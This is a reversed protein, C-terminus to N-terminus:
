EERAALPTSPAPPAVPTPGQNPAVGFNLEGFKGRTLRVSRPNDTTVDWDLPLTRTDVKLVFNSGIEADPVAACTIHYRGFADTTIMQGNVTVLRVSPVGPEGEDQYGNRNKDEFVKGILESCDFVASPVISIVATGRNSVTSSDAGNKALGTNVREGSTAGAGVVLVLRYRVSSNAPITQNAWTLEREGVSPAIAAGEITASGAVYRMGPPLVDVITLGARRVNETNRVTIEYPVLDGASATRRPTTKVVVLQARTLFPDLAIHNFVIDPDGSALRFTFYYPVEGSTAPTPLPSIRVPGTLGTPDFPGIQPLIVTSPASYGAPPTVVLRYVTESKPCQPSAGPVIDFRYEGSPGTRQTRQSPDLLCNVSLPVGSADVMTVIAGSVPARTVSDFIVGAPDIPENQDVISIEAATVSVNTISGYVVNNEPNIFRIEYGASQKVGVFQYNGNSDTIATAIVVGNSILKVIWNVRKPENSQYHGDANTDTYVTGAITGVSEAVTLTVSQMQCNAPASKDCLLYQMTYTGPQVAASTAVVGTAPDLTIGAPWTGSIAVTANGSTGLTAQVGNVMDNAAINAIPTSATGSVATGTDELPAINGTVTITVSQTQCNAPTSKDCLQYQMTYVGPQVEARTTVAGSAPDLTIGTPWVGAQSVTANGAANLTALTGNVRDNVVINALPTSPTGSVATGLDAVPAINGSVTITVSQTQCNAPTSKDCLQYQMMYVGPQVTGSISVAGTVPDLTIETLWTGTRAVTANGNAGLTAPTGNVVDNAVINTIPTAPAGASAMGTDPAPAINGSVNITVIQAQCNAPSSKDCLQYSVVYTGPQVSASTLVAGTAPDLTIGNPWRGTITVTANGTTGLTAPSGNVMDNAAINAVPTSPTGSVAKGIDAMPAIDGTVTITVQQTQCNAPASKDCLQYSVAYTGPQVAASTSVAGTLPDLTIGTPWTGSQAVTANGSAGLTAPTGNVTDNAALNVGPAAPTGAVSAGADAVPAIDGTVSITVDQTQCNAPTSKDCLLYSVVYTGPQVAASTSVRGSSPDLTIGNPWTGSQTVTANGTTGLTAPTGNVMDNAAINAVPTAPTGSIATGLDALPVIDGTVTITVNQAQCNAPTSMDCLQYQMAYTGPQVAASTSVAGTGPDLTVGAPWNGTTAVTANGATGLAAPAGNVMDNAAINAVPTAPTGSTAVGADAVPAINGSVSISVTQTECNAPTSKDCLQYAVVYTGPQVTATTLVAGTTADLTIGTPWTGSTAVTANGNVGLAAPAGNVLDNAAINVVPTSPTGSIATGTDAAPAIDGSVTITVSQTQCNAPTSKDCLQYQIAYVGPQVSATTSVSGTIPDLAIGAPWAGSTALTSNGDAGLTAPVGNVMDNAAINAVPTTPTGSIATGADSIPEINSTVIITVDQTQCNAPSSKDCLQYTVVYTGPQVIAATSVAGTMPDLTIGAPWTGIKTVTANGTTGLTAPAGNVSDNAAINAVPTSPAGSVAIGADPIPVINGTVTITVTQTQCNAPTSKDCLQYTAVYAGPQVTASTSIAGSVPDLSIGVPWTGFQAVSANGTAGLTAQRGNVTDNAAINAVPTSTAGSVAEGADSIPAINGAVTITVTQTQCNAPASKDCLQYQVTYVGPQVSASTSVAGTMPDLTIGTPWTGTTAVTANGSVGLTAPTGNVSDNITVNEVPTAQTGSVAVGTDTVAVVDGKVTITVTQSQCNAPTSRDCLQYSVVYTGPQLAASTTVAGTTPNLTIGAPWAGSTAVAANGASGLTAPAGNVMDNAAINAVSISPTGSIAEGVDATPAIDGAVSITVSQTACNAPTSRDCLQYGVAYTGPQVVASTMVAGTAPDLTIGAPWTGNTAIIANGASGLTAPAGNVSDNAAINAVPTAPTGSTAQGTDSLPAINGTVTITVSQTQCNAPTSKDCLQYTVVYKGPQVGADTSVAGSILDLTIGAPWTGSTAITAIGTDGLTAPAGNVMDNAALNAIPTTPTGSVAAGADSVPAINSAVTITVDQTQCNAPTSKDCLQYSVVYTGPQVAASTMVSATMPDLAIGAPWTGSQAVTANGSAGLTAPAGNVMDNIAINAVATAPTGSVATGADSTPAINSTVTITVNQTQCNAPTNLDCLQYQMAYDGPQVSATTSVAGTAPDLTIGTPWTGSQVITANGAPGLTAPAGNVMDNIAINAVATAPTGSTAQGADSIPAIDGTVTITVDQTQCNVPTSKDCLQYTVVYAGPQVAASTSVAGTAPDLTIGAPWTGSTAVTANGAAGLTAATGNVMDNAVINAVATAPTGSVATGTDATPVINGSVTITVTQTQCNAPASKDCLQYTVVYAGPQVAASTSVAGTAPDLTIGAPWAGSQAVTANGAVGLTASTGNVTDNAAINTVSTAPTGAVSAGADSMPAINATVTITVNQTQCNAPTSKDCLLYTVVYTGPQVAASTSVGDTAPNLAIGTPWAGTQAVTANPSAGTVEAPSGNVMDNSAINALPTTPTGSVATGSETSPLIAADVVVTATSNACNAPANRDCLQYPLVYTGPAVLNSISVAGTTPALEFGSPWVGVVSVSATLSSGAVVAPTGNVVDNVAINGIPTSVTGSVASGSDVSPDISASVVILATTTQCNAPTSKDCLQYALTLTGPQVRAGVTIAGTAPNLTVGTPWIGSTAITSNGSTGLTAPTGNVFDNAAINAIPTTVFGAVMTGNDAEPAINATVTVRDIITACNVPSNRDCLQYTLNYTGPQVSASTSVAGSLPDLTIGTPWTGSAAVTANGSDGLTAAIGNVRDGTAINAIAISPTGSIATGSETVPVIEPTVNITVISTACNVPSNRDCLEYTLTYTGPPTGPAVIVEGQTPELTIGVPWIGSQGLTANGATGLTAPVGNVVDNLAINPIATGGAASVTVVDPTPRIAAFITIIANQNACNAPSSTDCLTYPLTYTGPIDSADISIAGTAPDLTIGTPWTGNIAVTANGTAGLTAPAGNVNDNAAINAIAIMPSGAVASGTDLVPKIDGTVTITDTMTACNAPSNKDCLEYAVSYTGPQVLASTTVGGTAANLTIGAPWTGSTAVTANGSAGLTAPFGNVSDNAAINAFVTSPTGSISAGTETAPVINASVIVSVTANNCNAPTNLDCLRYTVVYTGPQVTTTVLVAGTAPNLSVGANTTSIQSLSANGGAGLTVSAGNVSDNSAVNAIATTVAGSVSTGNDIAPLINAAVSITINALACFPPSSMDCLQYQVVYTGPQVTGSTSVSGTLPDLTIGVPWSGSQALTANGTGGLTAPNGNVVDNIALNAVPTSPTGSIAAGNDNTPYIAGVVTVVATEVRCNAPTSKDCLQYQVPYTGPEVAAITTIAGTTPDLNIGTPWSGSQALIANGSVGLTAAFGNVADNDAINAIATSATGAFVSGADSTPLINSAVSITVTQNQCNAPTNKDCLQYSLVYTGPPVTASTTVAGTAPDLEIGVPWSGVSSVIANGAAGLTAAFGNVNDNAAVNNVPTSPAGSIASGSDTVPYIAATVTITSNSAACNVPTNRDCLQTAVVYVGPQVLASISINGTLPNLTIGAPWLGLEFVTANYSAGALTAGSGNVSDNSVLNSIVISATGSVGSGSDPAPSITANLTITATSIACNAPTNMDCLQYQLAYTGPPVSPTTTIAGTTPNLSIGAPWAGFKSVLANPSGGGILAPSGNVMDNSAINAIPTQLSGAPAVSSEPMPLIEATVTITDSVTACNAPTNKDCLQYSIPYSGPRVSSSVNIAGTAPDLAIGLAWTSSVAITANGSAGLTAAFGNVSDNAAINAIPTSATGSIATGSEATPVISSAVNITVTVLQCNVPTNLDCLQYAVSYSGPQLAASTTIAGTTPDLSVGAPWIGSQAIISNAATAPAGNVNDNARVNAIPTTAVGATAAGSDTTPAINASVVVTATSDACNPTAVKDCLKYALIYTGPQVAATSTVAGTAPNLAFGAPWTGVIAVSANGGVGLTAAPGNVFDNAAINNIPTAATGSTAIGSDPAPAIAGNVTITISQTQCNAPTNKDCLQYTLNYVGPAVAASTSVGGTAPNLTIGTPWTGSQSVTANGGAGLTAPSGNVIDNAAVNAVPVSVIGATSTGSDIAPAINSSVTITDSVSQCNAPANKDCLQYAVAYAGPAVSATTTIAGTATNLAIGTPWTGFQIITANGGAGLTVSASNVTDNATVNAIPTSATGSVASGNETVPLISAAITITATQTQCNAPTSKDCLQYQLAYTGPAVSATTSVAGTTPNLTVGIPWTGSTAITANGGVGLAAPAGNVNDNAAVNAIPTTAIGATANGSDIVPAINASVAVTDIVTACNPTAAKDCLQYTLNYTGPQVGATTTIAGTAPNLAIGVPWTGSQAITANGGAGLTAAAGNVTDNAAVNAIPTAATGSVANGSEPSPAINGNVTITLNQTQCNVPTNKDCLQYQLAYTGPAVGAGVTVAGSTANLAIGVPWTGVVGITANGAAGLTAASGNVSDNGAVNAVASSATGATAVGSDPNSVISASVTITDVITQCNVPTNLDCLQYAVNYSGPAVVASTSIAGSTTNLTIGAPWTGSQAITSNASSAAVGNVNDNSRVNTIPSSPTGSVATGSEAVPSIAATITISIAQLRCNAPTNRDCLQYQPTYIGPLAAASTSIAGTATNLTIGVPWTGSQAVVANASGGVINAPSGNVSDNAVVNAIVTSATGAVASGSETTTLINATVTVSDSIIACNAPTNKDCLQYAIAYTGPQVATSITVAGTASVLAIGTPWTGSQAVTANAGGGVVNAPSGNVTDNAAVNAIVTSATGSVGTGSETVPVINGGVTITVTATNCNVPTNKDCLQYVLSYTGPATATSATVAGTTTNLTLGTPWTGSQAITANGAAGLTAASGNVTDNAAVNVVPTSATGAVASGTDITAGINASVTITDSITACNPTAAKDCLQYAVSYTGPAVAASTTIAGTATNLAIGTPWTGSQAITANGGAGLTAAVTNITDNTVVNAIVTSAVGANGAGNETVAIISASVTISVTATACNVPTNKDCLQYVVPYSGPAVSATSSIAGTVTNLTIGTPWTGSQAITANGVAGLTAAAGNVLDNTAVNAVLTAATGAVSSGSDIAPVVSPSVTITAIATTCTVPTGKDCLQYTVAYSGPALSASATIAGTTTNLTIGAPWTGSQAIVANGAAGLTVPASNITDNAAVNTVPTSPTGATATGSDATGVVGATVTITAVATSCNAPTNKDCLQYTVPYVGAAVGATTTIAGTTTSLAIGTPWTGSQTIVSNGAGGLTAAVGNVFDNTVVNAIPTAATGAVASGSDVAVAINASVTITDAITKCNVPASKDCLQYTLNYTGPAVAATTTIAGTTTNLVIGAQWTGSQAVTANGAGGLTAAVGNITDNTIVTAIPTSATGSVATGTEAIPNIYAAVLAVNSACSAAPACGAGPTPASAGSTPDISASNTVSTNGVTAIPTVVVSITSTGGSPAISGGAFNCTLLGSANACTWNTGTASVFTLGAPLQDKVQATTAAAAGSNTTTLTYTSNTGFALAPSPASKAVALVPIAQNIFTCTLAGNDKYASSAITLTGGSLSSSIAGAAEDVCSAGSIAYGLLAAETITVPSTLNPIAAATTSIPNTTTTNLTTTPAGNTGSFSFTGTGGVSQKKVIINENPVSWILDVGDGVGVLGIMSVTFTLSTIGTGNIRLSGCAAGGNDTTAGLVSSCVGTPSAVGSPRFFTNGAGNLQFQFNGSLRTMTPTTGLNSGTLNWSSSNTTTASGGLRQVHLVPNTVAKNFTVTVTQTGAGPVVTASLTSANPITGGYPDSWYATAVMTSVAPSITASSSTTVTIGNATATPSAATTWTGTQGAFSPQGILLLSLVSVFALKLSFGAPAIEGDRASNETSSKARLRELANTSVLFLVLHAITQLAVSLCNPVVSLITSKSQLVRNKGSNEDGFDQSSHTL